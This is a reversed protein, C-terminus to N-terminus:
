NEVGYMYAYFLVFSTHVYKKAIVGCIVGGRGHGCGNPVTLLCIVLKCPLYFNFSFVTGVALQWLCRLVVVIRQDFGFLYVCVFMYIYVDM